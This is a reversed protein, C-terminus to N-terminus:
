PPPGPARCGRGAGLLPGLRQNLDGEDLQRAYRVTMLNSYVFFAALLAGFFLGAKAAVAAALVAVVISVMAARVARKAPSGPLLERLTQGGDLPLIPLLNLLSWSLTVWIATDVADRALGDGVGVARVYGLLLLGIVIGVAPGAVAIAISRARSLPAPPVYSTLGGLGALTIVPEAGTTRAVFAHGLEHVLVALPVMVLWVVFSRVTTGPTWGLIAVIVVFSIDVTVPFGFVRVSLIPRGGEVMPMTM